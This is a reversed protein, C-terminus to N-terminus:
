ACMIPSANKMCKIKTKVHGIYQEKEQLKQNTTGETNQQM